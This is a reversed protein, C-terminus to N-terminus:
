PEVITTRLVCFENGEPDAMVVWSVDGQGIDIRSAGLGILREVEEEQTVGLPNVDIHLRNKVTKQEPVPAFLITPAAPRRGHAQVDTIRPAIEVLGESDDTVEYGLVQRWFEALLKPDRCDVSIETL